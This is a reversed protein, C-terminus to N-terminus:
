SIELNALADLRQRVEETLRVPHRQLSGPAFNADVDMDKVGIDFWLRSQDDRLGQGQSRSLGFSAMSQGARLQRDYGADRMARILGRVAKYYDGNDERYYEEIADWSRMFEGVVPEGREYYDALADIELRPFEVRKESPMAGESVWRNLIASLLRRDEFQNEFLPRENWLFAAHTLRDGCIDMVCSREGAQFELTLHGRGMDKIESEANSHLAPASACLDERLTTLVHRLGQPPDEEGNKM